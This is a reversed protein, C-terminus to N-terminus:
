STSNHSMQATAGFRQRNVFPDGVGTFQHTTWSASGGQLGAAMETPGFGNLVQIADYDDRAPGLLAGIRAACIGAPAIWRRSGLCHRQGFCGIAQIHQSLNTEPTVMVMQIPTRDVLAQAAAHLDAAAVDIQQGLLIAQQQGASVTGVWGEEGLDHMAIAAQDDTQVAQFGLTGLLLQPDYALDYTTGDQRDAPQRTHIGAREARQQGWEDFLQLLCGPRHQGRQTIFLVHHDLCELLGPGVHWMLPALSMIQTVQGRGNVIM